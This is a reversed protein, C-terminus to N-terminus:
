QEASVLIVHRYHVRLRTRDVAINLKRGYEFVVLKEVNLDRRIFLHILDNHTPQFDLFVRTGREFGLRFCICLFQRFHYIKARYIAIDYRTQCHIIYLGAM